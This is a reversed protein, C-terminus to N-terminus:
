KRNKQETYYRRKANQRQGEQYCERCCYKAFRKFKFDAGCVICVYTTEKKRREARAKDNAAVRCQESCYLQNSKGSPRLFEKGCQKCKVQKWKAEQEAAPEYTGTYPHMAKWKGYSMGAELAACADRSLRDMGETPKMRTSCLRYTDGYDKVDIM